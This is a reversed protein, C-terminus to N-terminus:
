STKSVLKPPAGYLRLAAIRVIQRRLLEYQAAEKRDNDNAALPLSHKSM